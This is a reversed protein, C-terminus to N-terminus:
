LEKQVPQAAFKFNFPEVPLFLDFRKTFRRVSRSAQIPLSGPMTIYNGMVAACIGREQLALAVPCHRSFPSCSGTIDNQNLKGQRIHKETVKILM